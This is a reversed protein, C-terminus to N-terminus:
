QEKRIFIGPDIGDIAMMGVIEGAVGVANLQHRAPEDIDELLVALTWGAGNELIGVCRYGTCEATATGNETQINVQDGTSYLRMLPSVREKLWNEANEAHPNMLRYARPVGSKQLAASYVRYGAVMARSVALQYDVERARALAKEKRDAARALRLVEAETTGEFTGHDTELKM